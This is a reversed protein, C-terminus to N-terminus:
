IVQSCTRNILKPYDVEFRKAFTAWDTSLARMREAPTLPMGKQVLQFMTEEVQISLDSYEYTVLDRERFFKKTGDPLILRASAQEVGNVKPHCYFRLIEFDTDIATNYRMYIEFVFWKKQPVANDQVGIEGEMFRKISTLRQKGDVCYRWCKQIM